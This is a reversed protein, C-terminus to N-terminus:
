GIRLGRMGGQPKLRRLLRAAWRGIASWARDMAEERLQAARTMALQHLRATEAATPHAHM